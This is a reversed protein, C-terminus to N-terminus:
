KGLLKEVIAELDGQRVAGVVQDIIKGQKDLIFTSPIATVEYEEAVQGSTDLLIPFNMDNEKAFSQVAAAKEQLNVGILQVGRQAYKSQFAILEPIEVRCPPCWTAWFNLIVVENAELLQALNVQKGSVDTLTFDAAKIGQDTSDQQLATQPWFVGGAVLLSLVVVVVLIVGSKRKM